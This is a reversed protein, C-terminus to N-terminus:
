SEKESEGWRRRVEAINREVADLYSNPGDPFPDALFRYMRDYHKELKPRVVQIWFDPTNESLQRASKFPRDATAAHIYDQSEDFEHFLSTLFVTKGHGRLGYDPCASNQCCFDQLENM